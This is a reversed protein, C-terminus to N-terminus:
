GIGFDVPHMFLYFTRYRLRQLTLYAFTSTCSCPQHAAVMIRVPFKKFEVLFSTIPIPAPSLPRRHEKTLCSKRFVRGHVYCVLRRQALVTMSPARHETTSQM